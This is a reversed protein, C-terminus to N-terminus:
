RLKLTLMIKVKGHEIYMDASSVGWQFSDPFTGFLFDGNVNQALVLVLTAFLAKSTLLM